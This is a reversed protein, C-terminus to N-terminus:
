LAKSLTEVELAMEEDTMVQREEGKSDITGIRVEPVVHYHLHDISKNAGSGVAGDRVLVSINKMHLRELAAVAKAILAEIDDRETQLLEALKIVHRKPIVLMHHEHYQAKAYTLFATQADALIRDKTRCFPCTRVTKLYEAYLM